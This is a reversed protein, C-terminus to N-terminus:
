GLLQLVTLQTHSMAGGNETRLMLQPHMLQLADLAWTCTPIAGMKWVGSVTVNCLGLPLCFIQKNRINTSTPKMRFQFAMRVGRSLGSHQCYIWNCLLSLIWHLVISMLSGSNFLFKFDNKNCKLLSHREPPSEYLETAGDPWQLENWSSTM